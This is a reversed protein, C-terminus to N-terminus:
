RVSIWKDRGVRHFTPVLPLCWWVWSSVSMLFSYQNQGQYKRTKTKNDKLIKKPFIKEDIYEIVTEGGEVGRVGNEM